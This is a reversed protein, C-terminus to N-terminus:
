QEVIAIIINVFIYQIQYTDRVNDWLLMLITYILTCHILNYNIRNLTWKMLKVYKINSADLNNSM